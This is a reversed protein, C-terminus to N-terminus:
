KKKSKANEYLRNVTSKNKNLIKRIQKLVEYLELQEENYKVNDLNM